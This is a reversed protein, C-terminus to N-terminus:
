LPILIIEMIKIHLDPKELGEKQSTRWDILRKNRGTCGSRAQRWVEGISRIRKATARVICEYVLDTVQHVQGGIKWFYLGGPGALSRARRLLLPLGDPFTHGRVIVHHSTGNFSVPISRLSAPQQVSFTFLVLDKPVSADVFLESEIPFIKTATLKDSWESAVAVYAASIARKKWAERVM